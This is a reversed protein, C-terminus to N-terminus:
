GHWLHGYHGNDQSHNHQGDHHSGGSDSSGGTGGTSGGTGGTSGGGLPHVTQGPLIGDTDIGNLDLHGVYSGIGDQAAQAHVDAIQAAGSVYEIAVVPKGAATVKDLYQLNYNVDAASQKHGSDTYFLEEEFSGDIAKVYDPHSLLDEAGSSNVWVQFGPDKSTAYAKLSEVLNVMDQAANPDHSKAWALQYEDVVDLYIGNYGASVMQDIAKEAVAKWEPTWFAVQYDGPWSPDQPGIISKSLTSFYDRFNEPV